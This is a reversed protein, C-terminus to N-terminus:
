AALQEGHGEQEATLALRCIASRCRSVTKINARIAFPVDAVETARCHEAALVLLRALRTEARTAARALGMLAARDLRPDLADEHLAIVDNTYEGALTVMRGAVRFSMGDPLGLYQETTLKGTHRDQMLPKM